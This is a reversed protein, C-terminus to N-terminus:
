FLIKKTLKVLFCYKLTFRDISLYKAELGNKRDFIIKLFNLIVM